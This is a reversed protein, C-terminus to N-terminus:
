FDRAAEIRDRLASVLPHSAIRGLPTVPVPVRPICVQLREPLRAVRAEEGAELTGADDGDLQFALRGEARLSCSAFRRLQTMEVTNRATAGRQLMSGLVEFLIAPSEQQFLAADLLGDDLRAEAFLHGEGGYRKGNGLILEFGELEEGDPLTLTIRPHRETAVRLATVVHAAAGLRRKLRPTVLQVIRADMGFGAMQLFPRGNVTFIDVAQRLGSQMAELAVDYRRSGIGLERAFVNMTGSPLVGLAAGTGVLGVAANMLTGDGGAAAVVPEGGLALERAKERLEEACRTEVLHFCEEHRRLWERLGSRFLCGAKPNLLLPIAIQM